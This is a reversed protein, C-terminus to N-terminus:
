LQALTSSRKGKHPPANLSPVGPLLATLSDQTRSDPFVSANHGLGSDPLSPVLKSRDPGAPEGDESDRDAPRFTRNDLSLSKCSTRTWAGVMVWSTQAVGGQTQQRNGSGAALNEWCEEPPLPGEEDESDSSHTSAYSGSQDDDLSLDSDSDSEVCTHPPSPTILLAMTVFM